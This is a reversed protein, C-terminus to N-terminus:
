TEVEEPQQLVSNGGQCTCTGSYRIVLIRSDSLAQVFFALNHRAHFVQSASNSFILNQEGNETEFNVLIKGELVILSVFDDANRSAAFIQPASGAKLFRVQPHLHHPRPGNGDPPPPPGDVIDSDTPPRIDKWSAAWELNTVMDSIDAFIPGAIDELTHIRVNSVEGRELRSLYSKNLLAERALDEISLEAAKRHLVLKEAIGSSLLLILDMRPDGNADTLDKLEYERAFPHERKDDTKHHPRKGKLFLLAAPGSPHSLIIWAREKDTRSPPTAYNRHLLSPNIRILRQQPVNIRKGKDAVSESIHKLSEAWPPSDPWFFQYQIGESDEGNGCVFLLEEGVHTMYKGPETGHSGVSVELVAYSAGFYPHPGHWIYKLDSKKGGQRRFVSINPDTFHPDASYDKPPQKLYSQFRTSADELGFDELVSAIERLTRRRPIRLERTAKDATETKAGARQASKHSISGSASKDRSSTTNKANIM